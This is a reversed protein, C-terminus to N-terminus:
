NFKNALEVQNSYKEILYNNANYLGLPRFFILALCLIYDPNLQENSFLYIIVLSILVFLSNM